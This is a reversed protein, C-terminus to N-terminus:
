SASRRQKRNDHNRDAVGPRQARLGVRRITSVPVGTAKSLESASRKRLERVFWAEREASLRRPRGWSGGAAEVRARAAAQRERIANREVQAVWALLAEFMEAMPGDLEPLADAITRVACGRGRLERLLGLTDQIGSRTLRDLKYVYLMRVHGARVDARLRALEARALTGGTGTDEYWQAIVDGRSACARSIADRQTKANQSASSVRVYAAVGPESEAGWLPVQKPVRGSARVAKARSRRVKTSASVARTQKNWLFLDGTIWEKQCSTM